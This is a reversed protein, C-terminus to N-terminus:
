WVCWRIDAVNVVDIGGDGKWPEVALVFAVCWEINREGVDVISDAVVVEATVSAIFPGSDLTYLALISTCLNALIRTCFGFETM